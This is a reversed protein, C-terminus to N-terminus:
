LAPGRREHEVARGGGGGPPGPAGQKLPEELIRANMFPCAMRHGWAQSGEQGMSAQTHRSSWKADAPARQWDRGRGPKM